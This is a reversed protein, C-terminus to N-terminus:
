PNLLQHAVMACGAAGHDLTLATPYQQLVVLVWAAPNIALCNVHWADPRPTWGNKIAVGRDTPLGAIIGFRGEGRVNSMENLLWATWAPGAAGGVICLGLRAADAATTQTRSWWNTVPTTYRTLHCTAVMRTITADRGNARYVEEAAADDSDRIMRDLEGLHAPSPDPHRHLDDAALWVKVMSETTTQWTAANPSAATIQGTHLDLYAWATVGLPPTLIPTPSEAAQPHGTHFVARPPPPSSALTITLAATLLAATAGLRVRRM